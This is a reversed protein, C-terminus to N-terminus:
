SKYYVTAANEMNRQKPPCLRFDPGTVRSGPGHFRLDTVRPGQSRLGPIQSGPISLSSGQSEPVPVRSKHGQSMPGQHRPCQYHSGPILLQGGGCIINVKIQSDLKSLLFSTYTHWFRQPEFLFTLNQSIKKENKHSFYTM